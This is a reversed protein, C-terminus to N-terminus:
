KEGEEGMDQSRVELMKLRDLRHQLEELQKPTPTVDRGPSAYENPGPNHPPPATGGSYAFVNFNGTEKRTLEQPAYLMKYTFELIRAVSASNDGTIKISLFERLRQWVMNELASRRAMTYFRKEMKTLAIYSQVATNKLWRRITSTSCGYEKAWVTMKKYETAYRYAFDRMQEPIFPLDDIDPLDDVSIFSSFGTEVPARVVSPPGNDDVIIEPIRRVYRRVRDHLKKMDSKSIAM